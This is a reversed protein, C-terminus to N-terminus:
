LWWCKESIWSEGSIIFHDHGQRKNERCFPPKSIKLLQENRHDIFSFSIQFFAPSSTEFLPAHFVSRHHLSFFPRPQEHTTNKTQQLPQNLDKSTCLPTHSLLVSSTNQHGRPHLLPSRAGILRDPGGERITRRERARGRGCVCVSHVCHM